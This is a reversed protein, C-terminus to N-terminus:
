ARENVVSRRICENVIMERVSAAREGSAWAAACRGRVPSSARGWAAVFTQAQMPPTIRTSPVSQPVSPRRRGRKEVRQRRISAGCFGLRQAGTNARDRVGDGTDGKGRDLGRQSDAGRRLGLEDGRGDRWIWDEGFLLVQACGGCETGAQERSSRHPKVHRDPKSSDFPRHKGTAALVPTLAATSATAAETSADVETVTETAAFTQAHTDPGSETLPLLQPEM